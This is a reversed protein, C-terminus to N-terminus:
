QLEAVPEADTKNNRIILLLIGMLIFLVAAMLGYTGVKEIGAMCWEFIEALIAFVSEPIEEGPTLETSALESRILGNLVGPVAKALAAMGGGIVLTFAGATFFGSPRFWHALLLMALLFVTVGLFLYGSMRIAACLEARDTLSFGREKEAIKLEQVEPLEYIANIEDSLEKELASFEEDIIRDMEEDFIKRAEEIAQTKESEELMDYAEGYEERLAEEVGAEFERLAYEKTLERQPTLDIQIIKGQLLGHYVEYVIDEVQQKPFFEEPDIGTEQLEGEAGQVLLDYVYDMGGHEVFTQYIEEERGPSLLSEVSFIGGSVLGSVAILPFLLISLIVAIIIAAVSPKKKM